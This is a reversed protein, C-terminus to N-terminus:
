QISNIYDTITGTIWMPVPQGKVKFVRRQAKCAKKINKRVTRKQKAILKRRRSRQRRKLQSLETGKVEITRTTTETTPQIEYYNFNEEVNFLCIREPSHNIDEPSLPEIDSFTEDVDFVFEEVMEM